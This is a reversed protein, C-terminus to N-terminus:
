RTEHAHHARYPCPCNATSCGSQFTGAHGDEHDGDPAPGHDRRNPHNQKIPPPKLSDSRLFCRPASRASGVPVHWRPQGLLRSVPTRSQISPCPQDNGVGHSCRWSKHDSALIGTTPRDEQRCVASSHFTGPHKRRFLTRSRHHSASKTHTRKTPDNSQGCPRRWNPTRHEPIQSARLALPTQNRMRRIEALRQAVSAGAQKAPDDPTLMKTRTRLSPGFGNM